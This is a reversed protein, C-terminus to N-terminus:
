ASDGLALVKLLPLANNSSITETEAAVVESILGLSAGAGVSSVLLLSLRLM